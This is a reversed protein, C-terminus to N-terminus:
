KSLTKLKKGSLNISKTALIELADICYEPIDYNAKLYSLETCALIIADCGKGKLEFVVEMFKNYDGKKGKKIEDYIIEMIKMQSKESPLVVEAGQKKCEKEYIKTQITGDTALIGIKKIKKNKLVNKVAEEVMNIIPIKTFAQIQDFFYHTTNCPIAINDVECKELFKVGERFSILLASDNQTLIAETRDPTSAQNLIVMEVYDQDCKADTNDIIKQFFYQTAQSGMGGLVGLKKNKKIKM